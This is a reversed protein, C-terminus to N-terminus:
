SCGRISSWASCHWSMSGSFCHASFIIVRHGLRLRAGAYCLLLLKDVNLLIAFSTWHFSCNHLLMLILSTNFDTNDIHMVLKVDVVVDDNVIRVRHIGCGLPAIWEVM